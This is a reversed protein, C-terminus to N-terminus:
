VCARDRSARITRTRSAISSQKSVSWPPFAGTKTANCRMERSRHALQWTNAALRQDRGKFAQAEDDHSRSPAVMEETVGISSGRDNWHMGPFFEAGSQEPLDKVIAIEIPLIQVV